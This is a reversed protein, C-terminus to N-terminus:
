EGEFLRRDAAIRRQIARWIERQPAAGRPLGLVIGEALSPEPERFTRFMRDWLTLVAGFNRHHLEPDASHHVAHFNPFVILHGITAALARPARLNAHGIVALTDAIIAYAVTAAIPVGLAAQATIILGSLLAFEAPHHRFTTSVDLDVDSHHVSHLRWLLRNVHCLRHLGYRMLDLVLFAALTGLLGDPWTVWTLLHTVGRDSMSMMQIAFGILGYNIGALALNMIWRSRQASSPLHGRRSELFGALVFTIILILTSAVTPDSRIPM